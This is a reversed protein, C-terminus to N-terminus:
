GTKASIEYYPMQLEEAKKKAQEQSIEREELDIKNGIMFTFGEITRNDNYLKLWEEVNSISNSSSVDIVIIACKADKLYNPILARYREQGATDWIQL